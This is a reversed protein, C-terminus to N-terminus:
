QTRAHPLTGRVRRGPGEEQAYEGAAIRISGNAEAGVWLGAAFVVANTSGRPYLLGANGTQLDYAFSGHNTVVMDLNNVDMRDDNDVIGPARRAHTSGGSAQAAEVRSLPFALLLLVLLAVLVHSCPPVFGTRRM